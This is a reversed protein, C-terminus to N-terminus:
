FGQSEEGNKLFTSLLEIALSRKVYNSGCFIAWILGKLPLVLFHSKGVLLRSSGIFQKLKNSYNTPNVSM